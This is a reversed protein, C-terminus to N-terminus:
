IELFPYYRAKLVRSQLEASRPLSSSYSSTDHLQLLAPLDQLFHDLESNIDLVLGLAQNSYGRLNQVDHEDWLTLIRDGIM